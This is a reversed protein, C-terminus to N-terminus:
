LDSDQDVEQEDRRIQDANAGGDENEVQEDRREERRADKDQQLEASTLDSETYTTSCGGLSLALSGGAIVLWALRHRM